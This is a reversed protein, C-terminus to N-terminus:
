PARETVRQVYQRVEDPKLFKKMARDSASITEWSYDKGADVVVQAAAILGFPGGNYAALVLKRMSSGAPVKGKKPLGRELQKGIYVLYNAALKIGAAPDKRPDKDGASAAPLEIGLRKAMARADKDAANNIQGVGVFSPNPALKNVIGKKKDELGAISTDTFDGTEQALMAKLDAPRFNEPVDALVKKVDEDLFDSDFRGFEVREEEIRHRLELFAGLAKALKNVWEVVSAFKKGGLKASDALDAALYIRLAKEASWVGAGEGPVAKQRSSSPESPQTESMPEGGWTGGSQKQQVAESCVPDVAKRQLREM